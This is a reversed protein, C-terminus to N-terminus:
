GPSTVEPPRKGGAARDAMSPPHVLVALVVAIRPGARGPPPSAPEDNEHANDDEEADPDPAGPDEVQDPVM